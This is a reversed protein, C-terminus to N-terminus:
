PDLEDGLLERSPFSCEHLLRDEVQLSEADVVSVEVQSVLGQLTLEQLSFVCYSPPRARSSHLRAKM